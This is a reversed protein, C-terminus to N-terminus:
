VRRSAKAAVRRDRYAQGAKGASMLANKMLARNERISSAKKAEAREKENQKKVSDQEMAQNRKEFHAQDKALRRKNYRITWEKEFREFEKQVREQNERDEKKASFWTFIGKVLGVAAGVGAGIGAGVGGGALGGAAGSMAGKAVQTGIYGAPGGKLAETAKPMLDLYSDIDPKVESNPDFWYKGQATWYQLDNQYDNVAANEMATITDSITNAVPGLIGKAIETSKRPSAGILRGNKDNELAVIFSDDPLPVDYPASADHQYKFEGRAYKDSLAKAKDTNLSLGETAHSITGVPGSSSTPGDGSSSSALTKLASGSDLSLGSAANNFLSGGAGTITKPPDYKDMTSRIKRDASDMLRQTTRSTDITQLEAM